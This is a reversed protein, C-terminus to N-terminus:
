HLAAAPSSVVRSRPHARVAILAGYAAWRHGADTYVTSQSRIRRDTGVAAHFVCCGCAREAAYQHAAHSTPPPQAPPALGSSATNPLGSHSRLVVAVWASRSTGSYRGGHEARRGPRVRHTYTSRALIQPVERLV